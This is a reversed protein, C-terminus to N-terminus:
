LCLTRDANRNQFDLVTNPEQRSEGGALTSKLAGDGQFDRRGFYGGMARGDAIIPL